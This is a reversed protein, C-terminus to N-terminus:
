ISKGYLKFYHLRLLILKIITFSHTQMFQLKVLVRLCMYSPEIHAFENVIM